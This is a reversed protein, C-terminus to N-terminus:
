CKNYIETVAEARFKEKYDDFWNNELSLGNIVKQNCIEKIQTTTLEPLPCNDLINQIQSQPYLAYIGHPDGHALILDVTDYDKNNKYACIIIEHDRSINCKEYFYEILKPEYAAMYNQVDVLKLGYQKFGCIQDYLLKLAKEIGEGLQNIARSSFSNSIM